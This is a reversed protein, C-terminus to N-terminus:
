YPKNCQNHKQMNFWDRMGLIFGLKDYHIIKKHAAANLENTNQQLNKHRIILFITRYNDKQSLDKDM